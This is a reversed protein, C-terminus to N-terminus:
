REPVVMVRRSNPSSSRPLSIRPPEWGGSLQASVRASISGASSQSSRRAERELRALQRRSAQAAARVQALRGFVARLADNFANFGGFGQEITSLLLDSDAQLACRAERADFQAINLLLEVEDFNAESASNHGSEDEEEAPEFGGLLVLEINSVSGGMELFVFIEIVCWLRHLYTKGVFLVLSNCGALFVPLCALHDAICEQNLCCKDLWVIPERGHALRFEHRWECIASWKAGPDDSWSHSLFADVQSFHAPRALRRFLAHNPLSDRVDIESLNSLRVACFLKQGCELVDAASRNGLLAAIGAAATLAEGRSALLGQAKNRLRPHILIV